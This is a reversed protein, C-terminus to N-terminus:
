GTKACYDQHKPCWSSHTPSQVKDAGCECQSPVKYQEPSESQSQDCAKWHPSKARVEEDSLADNECEPICSGLPANCVSCRYMDASLTSIKIENGTTTYNGWQINETSSSTTTFTWGEFLSSLCSQGVYSNELKEAMIDAIEKTLKELEEESALYASNNGELNLIKVM